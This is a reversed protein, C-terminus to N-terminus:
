TASAASPQQFYRHKPRLAISLLGLSKAFIALWQVNKNAIDTQGIANLYIIGFYILEAKSTRINWRARDREEETLAEDQLKRSAELLKLAFGACVLGVVWTDLTQNKVWQFGPYQGMREAWKATDILNWGQSYLGVCGIDVLTWVFNTLKEILPTHRLFIKVDDLRVNSFNFDESNVKQLRKQLVQKFEEVNRYADNNAAMKELQAQLCGRVINRLPDYKDDDDDSSSEIDESEVNRVIKCDILMDDDDRKDVDDIERENAVLDDEDDSEDSINYERYLTEVLSDLVANEDISEATIPYFWQRPFKLFNYFDHMNATALAFSFRSLSAAGPYRMIILQLSAFAVQCVKQFFEPNNRFDRLKLVVSKATNLSADCYSGFSQNISRLTEQVNM